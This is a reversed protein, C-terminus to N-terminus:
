RPAAAATTQGTDRAFAPMAAWAVPDVDKGHVYIGYHLHPGTALGTAGVRAVQKGARVEDGRRVLVTDLHFYASYIGQGHDILLTKGSLVYDGVEAIVGAAPATVFSRRSAPLDVGAHRWSPVGSANSAATDTGFAGRSKMEPGIKIARSSDAARYYFREVGYGTGKGAAVVSRWTGSWRRRDSEANLIGRIARSDRSIDSGRALLAYKASDLFVLERGFDKDAVTIQRTIRGAPREFALTFTGAPEDAPLPVIALVGRATRYCPLTAGKWSCRPIDTAVGEALAFVVGGRTPNGPAITVVGTDRAVSAPLSDTPTAPVGSVGGSDSAPAGSGSPALTSTDSKEQKSGVVECAMTAGLALLLIAKCTTLASRRATRLASM